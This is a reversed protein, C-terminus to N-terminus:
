PSPPPLASTDSTSPSLTPTSESTPPRAPTLQLIDQLEQLLQAQQQRTCDLQALVARLREHVPDPNQELDPAPSTQPQSSGSLPWLTKALVWQGLRYPSKVIWLLLHKLLTSLLELMVQLLLLAFLAVAIALVPHAVLWSLAAYVESWDQLGRSLPAQWLNVAM